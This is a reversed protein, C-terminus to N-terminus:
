FFFMISYHNINENIIKLILEKNPCNKRPTNKTFDWYKPLISIGLSIYKLKKDKCLRVMLPSEGNALIKSKYCVVNITANMQFNPKFWSKFWLFNGRFYFVRFIWYFLTGKCKWDEYSLQYLLQSKILPDLTRTGALVCFYLNRM